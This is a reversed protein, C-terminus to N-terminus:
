LKGANRAAIWEKPNKEPDLEATSGSGGKTPNIPPPAKTTKKETLKLREEIKGIEVAMAWPNLKSIREAEQINKGLHYIIDAGTEVEVLVSAMQPTLIQGPIAQVTEAFDKYKAEGSSITAQRKQDFTQQSKQAEARQAEVKRLDDEQKRKAAESADRRELKWDTVAEVYDEYTQFDGVVPKPKSFDGSPTEPQKPKRAEALEAELKAAHEKASEIKAEAEYRKRTLEDFRKKYWPKKETAEQDAREQAERQQEEEQEPTIVPETQATSQEAPTADQEAQEAQITPEEAM